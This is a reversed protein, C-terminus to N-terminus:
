FERFKQLISVPCSAISSGEKCLVTLIFCM